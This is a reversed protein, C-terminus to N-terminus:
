QKDSEILDILQNCLDIVNQRTLPITHGKYHIGYKRRNIRAVKLGAPM